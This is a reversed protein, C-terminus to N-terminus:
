KKILTKAKVQKEIRSKSFMPKDLKMTIEDHKSDLYPNAIFGEKIKSLSKALYTNREANYESSETSIVTHGKCENRIALIDKFDKSLDVSAFSYKPEVYELTVNNNDDIVITECGTAEQAYGRLVVEILGNLTKYGGDSLYLNSMRAYQNLMQGYKYLRVAENTLGDSKRVKKKLETYREYIINFQDINFKDIKKVEIDDIRETSLKLDNVTESVYLSDELAAVMSRLGNDGNIVTSISEKSFADLLTDLDYEMPANYEKISKGMVLVVGGALVIATLRRGLKLNKM